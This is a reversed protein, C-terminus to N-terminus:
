MFSVHLIVCYVCQPSIQRDVDVVVSKGAKDMVMM